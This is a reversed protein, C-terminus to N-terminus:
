HDYPALTGWQMIGYGARCDFLVAFLVGEADRSDGDRFLMVDDRVSVVTDLKKYLAAGYGDRGPMGSLEVAGKCEVAGVGAGTEACSLEVIVETAPVQTTEDSHFYSESRYSGSWQGCEDLVDGDLPEFVRLLSVSAPANGEPGAGSVAAKAMKGGSAPQSTSARAQLEAIHETLATWSTLIELDKSTVSEQGAAEADSVARLYDQAYRSLETGTQDTSPQGGWDGICATAQGLCNAFWEGSKGEFGAGTGTETASGLSASVLETSVKSGPKSPVGDKAAASAAEGDEQASCAFLLICLLSLLSFPSAFSSTM